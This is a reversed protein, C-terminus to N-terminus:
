RMGAQEKGWLRGRRTGAGRENTATPLLRRGRRESSKGAVFSCRLIPHALARAAASTTACAPARAPTRATRPGMCGARVANAVAVRVTAVADAVVMVAYPVVVMADAVQTVVMVVVMAAREAGHEVTAAV